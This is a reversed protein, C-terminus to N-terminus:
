DFIRQELDPLRLVLSCCEASPVTLALQTREHVETTATKATQASEPRDRVGAANSSHLEGNVAVAQRVCKRCHMVRVPRGNGKLAIVSSLELPAHRHPITQRHQLHLLPRVPSRSTRLQCKDSSSNLLSSEMDQGNCAM